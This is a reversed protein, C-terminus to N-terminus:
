GVLVNEGRILDCWEERSIMGDMDRDCVNFMDRVQDRTVDTCGMLQLGQYLEDLTLYGDGDVDMTRFVSMLREDPKANGTVACRVSMRHLTRQWHWTGRIAGFLPVHLNRVLFLVILAVLFLFVAANFFLTNTRWTRVSYLSLFGGLWFSAVLGLLIKLKWVNAYNGRFLQGLFLGIDTSTGTMHTTRILNASYMSSIGNQIGNALAVFFFFRHKHPDKSSKPEAYAMSAAICMFIAGLLFTPAYMPALRWPSPRPNLLASITSGSVFSMAMCIQFGFVQVNTENSSTRHYTEFSSSALALASSTYVGTYGSTSQAPYLASGVPALLGSLSLGNSFGSNFALLMALFVIFSHERASYGPNM